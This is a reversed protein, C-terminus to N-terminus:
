IDDDKKPTAKAAAPKAAATKAAEAEAAKVKGEESNPDVGNKEVTHDAAGGRNVSEVFDPNAAAFEEATAGLAIAPTEGDAVKAEYLKIEDDSAERLAGNRELRWYEKTNDGEASFVAGPMIDQHGRNRIVSVAVGYLKNAM